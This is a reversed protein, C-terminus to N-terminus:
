EGNQKHHSHKKNIPGTPKVVDSCVMLSGKEVLNRRLGLEISHVQLDKPLVKVVQVAWKKHVNECIRWRPLSFSLGSTLWFPATAWLRCSRVGSFPCGPGQEEM